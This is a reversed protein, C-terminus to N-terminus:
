DSVFREAVQSKSQELPLSSPRVLECFKMATDVEEPSSAKPLYSEFLRLVRVLLIEQPSRLLALLAAMYQVPLMVLELAELLKTLGMIAAQCKKSGGGQMESNLMQSGWAEHYTFSPHVLKSM